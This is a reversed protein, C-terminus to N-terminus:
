CMHSIWKGGFKGKLNGGKRGRSLRSGLGKDSRDARGEHFPGPFVAPWRPFQLTSPNTRDCNEGNKWKSRRARARSRSSDLNFWQAVVQLNKLADVFGLQTSSVNAISLCDSEMPLRVSVTSIYTNSNQVSTVSKTDNRIVSKHWKQKLPSVFFSFFFLQHAFVEYLCSRFSRFRIDVSLTRSGSTYLGTRPREEFNHTRWTSLGGLFRVINPLWIKEDAAQLEHSVSLRSVRSHITLQYFFFFLLDISSISSIERNLLTSPGISLTPVM